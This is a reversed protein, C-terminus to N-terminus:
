KFYGRSFVKDSLVIDSLLSSIKRLHRINQGVLIKDKDLIKFRANKGWIFNKKLSKDLDFIEFHSNQEAETLIFEPRSIALM